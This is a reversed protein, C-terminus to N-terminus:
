MQDPENARIFPINACFISAPLSLSFFLLSLYPFTLFFCSFSLFRSFIVYVCSLALHTEYFLPKKKKADGGWLHYEFPAATGPNSTECQKAM